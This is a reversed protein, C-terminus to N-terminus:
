AGDVSHPGDWRRSALKRILESEVCVEAVEPLVISPRPYRRTPPNFLAERATPPILKNGAVPDYSLVYASILVVLLGLAGCPLLGWPWPLAVALSVLLGATLVVKLMQALTYRLFCVFVLASRALEALCYIALVGGVVAAFWILLRPFAGFFPLIFIAILIVIGVFRLCSQSCAYLERLCPRVAPHDDPVLPLASLSRRRLHLESKM